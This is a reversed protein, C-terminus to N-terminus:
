RVVSSGEVVDELPVVAVEVLYVRHEETRRLNPQGARARTACEVGPPRMRIHKARGKMSSSRWRGEGEDVDASQRYLRGTAVRRNQSTTAQEDCTQRM